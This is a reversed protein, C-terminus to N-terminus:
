KQLHGNETEGMVLLMCVNLIKLLCVNFRFVARSVGSGGRIKEMVLVAVIDLVAGLLGVVVGRPFGKFMGLHYLKGREIEELNDELSVRKQL